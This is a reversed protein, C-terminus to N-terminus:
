DIFVLENTGVLARLQSGGSNELDARDDPEDCNLWLTSRQTQRSLERLLTTKGIQRPGTLIIAKGQYLDQQIAATIQRSIM